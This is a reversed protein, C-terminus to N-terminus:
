RSEREELSVLLTSSEEVTLLGRAVRELIDDLNTEPVLEKNKNVLANEEEKSPSINLQGRMYNAQERVTTYNFLDAIDMVGPYRKEYERLMESTLLSNGGLSTFGKDADIEEMGLTDAWIRAVVLDIEDPQLIGLLTVNNESTSKNKSRLSDKIASTSKQIARGPMIVPDLDSINCLIRNFLEMAEATYIPPFAETEDVAGMRNAIGIERWAPWQISLATLGRHDLYEALSDLFMNASTYDTQGPYHLISSISSFMIFIDLKDELTALHLNMAGIAKPGYVERYVQEEKNFLFGDGSKGALHLIGKIEGMRSRIDDLYFGLTELDDLQISKVEFESLERDLGMWYQIKKKLRMDQSNEIFNQWDEKKPITQKGLLVLKEFGSRVLHGAVEAGLDGTGGTIIYVGEKNISIEKKSVPLPRNEMVTGYATDNRYALYVPRNPNALEKMLNDASTEKDYEICRMNINEFELAAVDWLGSLAGQDPHLADESGDVRRGQYTLAALGAKTRYKLKTWTKLFRFGHIVAEEAKNLSSIPLEGEESPEWTFMAIALEEEYIAKLKNEWDIEEQNVEIVRHGEDRLKEILRKMNSGIKGVVLATGSPLSEQAPSAIPQFVQRYGYTDNQNFESSESTSKISYNFIEALCKGRPNYLAINFRHVPSEKSGEIKKLHAYFHAPLRDYVLLREYSLPLYLEGEDTSNNAVNVAIDMLAPHLYYHSIEGQYEKPLLLEVLFEQKEEDKWGNVASNLWREGLKLGRELDDSTDLTLSENLGAKLSNIDQKKGDVREIREENFLIGQAHLNWDGDESPSAFSFKYNGGENEVLMHLDKATGNRVIFPRIFIIDKLHLTNVGNAILKGYAVMQEVLSTGPLVSTGYVRHEDLEWFDEASFKRCFITHGITSIVEEGLLPHLSKKVNETTIEVWCRSHQFPYTPLPIRRVEINKFLDDWSLEAGAVYYDACQSLIEMSPMENHNKLLAKARAELAKIGSNTIDLEKIKAEERHVIHHEGYRLTKNSLVIEKGLNVYEELASCLQKRNDFLVALRINHHIRGKSATFVTDALDITTDKLKKLYDKALQVLAEPTKASLPLMLPGTVREPTTETTVPSSEIIMHCNTGSLGFSSIGARVVENSDDGWTTPSDNVYVPTEVFPIIRNPIKFNLSAPITHNRMSLIVKALGGLGAAHNLHGINSKISGIACFQKKKTSRSFARQIGDIEIPDGLRTGTGHAEIYSIDEASVSADEFARLILDEQAESNPATIGNSAGDQNVAGGLIVAHITDGNIKAADLPKLVVAFVGEASYTGNCYDDFTRTHYDSSNINQIDVVGFGMKGNELIPLLNYSVTGAIAMSCNGNRISQVAQYLAVLASSCATDVMVAPGHLNLQYAIRSAIISKVGGSVAIEPSRNAMTNIIHRYDTGFDSSFGVFVGVDSGKIDNGGYGSHELAKWATELFMRQNPDMFKAEKQSLGFFRYDFGDIDTLYTSKLWLDDVLSSDFGKARLFKENDERRKQPINRVGERGNILMDWLEELNEAEGVKGEMGIIAIAKNKSNGNYIHVEPEIESEEQVMSHLDLDDINLKSTHM